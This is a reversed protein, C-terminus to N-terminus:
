KDSLRFLTNTSVLEHETFKRLVLIGNSNVKGVGGKGMTGRWLELDHRVKASFDGLLIIKDEQHTNTVVHDLSSFYQEKVNDDADPKPTYVSSNITTYQNNSCM